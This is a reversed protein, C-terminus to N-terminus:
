ATTSTSRTGPCGRAGRRLARREAAVPARVARDARVEADLRCPAPRRARGPDAHVHGPRPAAGGAVAEADAGAQAGRDATAARRGEASLRRDLRQQPAPVLRAAPVLARVHWHGDAHPQDVRSGPAGRRHGRGRAPWQGRVRATQVRSGCRALSGPAPSGAGPRAARREEPVLRRVRRAVAHLRGEDHRAAGGASAPLGERGRCRGRARRGRQWVRDRCRGRAPPRAQRDGM